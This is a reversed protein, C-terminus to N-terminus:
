VGVWGLRVYASSRLIKRDKIVFFDLFCEGSFKSKSQSNPYGLKGSICWIAGFINDWDIEFKFLFYNIIYKEILKKLCCTKNSLDYKQHCICWIVRARISELSSLELTRFNIWSGCSSLYDILVRQYYAWM